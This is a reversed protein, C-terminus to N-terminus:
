SARPSAMCLAQSSTLQHSPSSTLTSTCSGLLSLTALVKCLVLLADAAVGVLVVGLLWCNDALVSHEDRDLLLQLPHRDKLSNM